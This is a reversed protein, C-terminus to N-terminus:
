YIIRKLEIYGGERGEIPEDTDYWYGELFPMGGNDYSLNVKFSKLETPFIMLPDINKKFILVKNEQWVVEGADYLTLYLDDHNFFLGYRDFSCRLSSSFSSQSDPDLNYSMTFSGGFFIQFVLQKSAEGATNSAIVTTPYSGASLSNDWSILNDWDVEKNQSIEIGPQDSIISLNGIEGGWFVQPKFQGETFSPAYITDNIQIIPLSVDLSTDEEDPSCGTFLSVAMGLFFLLNKMIM